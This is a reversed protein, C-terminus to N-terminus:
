REGDKGSLANIHAQVNGCADTINGSSDRNYACWPLHDKSSKYFECLRHRAANDSNCRFIIKGATHVIRVCLNM